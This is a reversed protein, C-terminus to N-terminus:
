KAILSSHRLTCPQDRSARIGTNHLQHAIYHVVGFPRVEDWDNSDTQATEREKKREKKKRTEKRKKKREKKSKKKKEKLGDRV